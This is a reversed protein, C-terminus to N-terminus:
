RCSSGAGSRTRRREPSQPPRNETGAHDRQEEALDELMEVAAEVVVEIVAPRAEEARAHEADEDGREAAEAGDRRLVSEPRERRRADAGEAAHDQRRRDIEEGPEEKALLRGGLAPRLIEDPLDAADNDRDGGAADTLHPAPDALLQDVLDGAPTLRSAIASFVETTTSSTTPSVTMTLRRQVRPLSM